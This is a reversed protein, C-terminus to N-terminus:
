ASESGPLAGLQVGGVELGAARLAAQLQPLAPDIRQQATESRLLTVDVQNGRLQLRAQVAGLQPLDLDIQTSWNRQAAAAGQASSGDPDPRLSWRATQGPWLLGEWLVQGQMLSQLQQQVIGHLEAPLRAALQVPDSAAQPAAQVAGYAALGAHRPAPAADAFPGVSSASGQPLTAPRPPQGTQGAPVAHTQGATPATQAQATAPQQLLPSLKGQPQALLASLPQQGQAWAGLQSEYFLGSSGLASALLQAAQQAPQAPNTWVPTAAAARTGQGGVSTNTSGSAADMQQLLGLLQGPGSLLAQVATQQPGPPALLFQPQGNQAGLYVLPLRAGVQPPPGPLTAAVLANGLRLMVQTQLRSEAAANPMASSAPNAGQGALVQVVEADFATGPTATFAGTQPTGTTAAAAPTAAAVGNLTVPSNM